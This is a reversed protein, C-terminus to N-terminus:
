QTCSSPTHSHKTCTYPRQLSAGKTLACYLCTTSYSYSILSWPARSWQLINACHVDPCHQQGKGTAYSTSGILSVVARVGLIIGFKLDSNERLAPLTSHKGAVFHSTCYNASRVASQGAAQAEPCLGSEGPLQPRRQVSLRCPVQIPNMRIQCTSRRSWSDM